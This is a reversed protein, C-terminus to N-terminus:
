VQIKKRNLSRAPKKFFKSFIDFTARLFTQILITYNKPIDWTTNYILIRISISLNKRNVIGLKFCTKFIYICFHNYSFSFSSSNAAPPNIYTNTAYKYSPSNKEGKKICVNERKGVRFLLPIQLLHILLLIQLINIRLATKRGRKEKGM